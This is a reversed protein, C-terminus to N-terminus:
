EYDLSFTATATFEGPTIGQNALADPTAQVYAQWTLLMGGTTVGTVAGAEGPKVPVGEPTELGIAIGKAVSGADPALLGPLGDAPAGSFTVSVTGAIAPNCETLHISFPVGKTRAGAYLAKNVISGFELNVSEEGPPIVCPEAVLAGTFSVNNELAMGPPSLAMGLMALLFLQMKM